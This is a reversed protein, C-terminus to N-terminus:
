LHIRQRLLFREAGHGALRAPGNGELVRRFLGGGPEQVHLKLDAAGSGHRRHGPELGHEDTADGDAVGRQVVHVFDGPETDVDAVRHHHATGTVHNRLHHLDHCPLRGFPAAAM